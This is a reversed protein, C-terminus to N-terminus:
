KFLDSIGTLSEVADLMACQQLQAINVGGNHALAFATFESVRDVSMDTFEVWGGDQLIRLITVVDDNDPEFQATAILVDDVRIQERQEIGKATLRSAIESSTNECQQSEVVAWGDENSQAFANTAACLTIATALLVNKM